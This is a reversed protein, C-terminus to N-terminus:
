EWVGVKVFAGSPDFLWECFFDSYGLVGGEHAVLNVWTSGPDLGAPNDGISLNTYGVGFRDLMARFDDLDSM